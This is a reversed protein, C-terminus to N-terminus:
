EAHGTPESFTTDNLSYLLRRGDTRSECSGQEELERLARHARNVSVGLRAALDKASSGPHQAIAVLLRDEVPKECRPDPVVLPRHVQLRLVGDTLSVDGHEGLWERARHLAVHFSNEHRRPDYDFGYVERYLVGAPMERGPASGLVAAFMESRGKKRKSQPLHRGARAFAAFALSPFRRSPGELPVLLYAAARDGAPAAGRLTLVGQLAAPTESSRGACWAADPTRGAVPQPVLAALISAADEAVWPARELAALEAAGATLDDGTAARACVDRLVSAPPTSDAPTPAALALEWDVWARWSEPTARHLAGAIRAALHPQGMRRRLRALVLNAIYEHEPLAETRAMRSARRALALADDVDGHRAAAFARLAAVEVVLAADTRTAAARELEALTAEDGAHGAWMARWAEAWGRWGPDGVAAAWGALRPADLSLVASVGNARM